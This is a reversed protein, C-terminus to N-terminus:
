TILEKVPFDPYGNLFDKLMVAKKGEMQVYGKPLFKIHKDKWTTWAGPEPYFARIKQDLSKLDSLNTLDIYAKDKGESTKWTFTVQSEDQPIPTIQKNIYENIIQPLNPAVVDKFISIALSEFTDDKNISIPSSQAIIPGHDMKNDMLIYSVSTTEDGNLIVAQIPCAGRYKPLESPHINISGYQPIDLLEQSIIKGYAAVVFLDAELTKLNNIEEDSSKSNIVSIVDFNEKLSELVPNIYYPSGFFVVKLSKNM